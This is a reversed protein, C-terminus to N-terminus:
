VPSDSFFEDSLNVTLYQRSSDLSSKKKSFVLPIGDSWSLGQDTVLDAIEDVAEIVANSGTSYIEGNKTTFLIKNYTSGDRSIGEMVVYGTATLFTIGSDTISLSEAHTIRYLFVKNYAQDSNIVRLANAM